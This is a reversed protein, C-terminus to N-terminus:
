RANPFTWPRPLAPPKFGAPRLITIRPPAKRRIVLPAWITALMALGFLAVYPDGTRTLGLMLVLFLAGLTLFIAVLVFGRFWGYVVGAAIALGILIEM